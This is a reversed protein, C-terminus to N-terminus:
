EDDTEGKTEIQEEQTNRSLSAACAPFWNAWLRMEEPFWKMANPNRCVFQRTTASNEGKRVFVELEGRTLYPSAALYAKDKGRATMLRELADRRFNPHQLMRSVDRTGALSVFVEEPIEPYAAILRTVCSPPTRKDQLAAIVAETPLNVAGAKALEAASVPAHKMVFELQERTMLPATEEIFCIDGFHHRVLEERLEASANPHKFIASVAEIFSSM